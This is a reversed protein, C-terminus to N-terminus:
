MRPALMKLVREATAVASHWAGHITGFHEISAAEGAFFVRDQLAIGLRERLHAKGPLAISYSGLAWPDSNWATSVARGLQRGFGAGFIGTLEARAFAELEGKDELERAFDGGFYASVADHGAPRTAYSGTRVTSDSGLFHTTGEFPLAGPAVEFFVKNNTGLPLGSFAEALEVPLAPDFRIAQAALVSTPVTVIAADAEVIGADCSLRVRPGRLDIARVPCNLEVDLTSAAHSLLTGLGASLAWNDQSEHYRSFDLTSVRVSNAGMWWGMVADFRVRFEDDPIVDAVAVDLGRQAAQAILELNRAFAADWRGRQEPTPEERAIRRGWDPPQTIIAFGNAEAYASWPNSRASHLWACGMDVPVGISSDTWAHGGVRNRAELVRPKVGAQQLHRGAAIGAAGAGVIVVGPNSM